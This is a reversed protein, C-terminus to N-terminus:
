FGAAQALEKLNSLGEEDSWSVSGSPQAIILRHIKAGEVKQLVFETSQSLKNVAYRAEGQFGTVPTAMPLSDWPKGNALGANDPYTAVSFIVAHTTTGSQDLPYLCDERRVGSPDITGAVQVPQIEEAPEGLIERVRETSLAACTQIDPTPILVSGDRAETPTQQSPTPSDSANSTQQTSPDGSSAPSASPGSCSSLTVAAVLLGVARMSRRKTSFM